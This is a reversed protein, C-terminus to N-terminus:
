LFFRTMAEACKQLVVDATTERTFPMAAHLHNEQYAFIWESQMRNFTDIGKLLAKNKERRALIVAKPLPEEDLIRLEKDGISLCFAEETLELTRADPFTEKAARVFSQLLTEQKGEQTEETGSDPVNEPVTDPIDEPIYDPEPEAAKEKEPEVAKQQMQGEEDELRMQENIRSQLSLKEQLLKRQEAELQEKEKLLQGRMDELRDREEALEKREAELAKKEELLKEQRAALETERKALEERSEAIKKERNQYIAEREEFVANMKQYFDQTQAEMTRREAMYRIETCLQM